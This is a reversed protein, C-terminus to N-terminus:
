IEDPRRINSVFAPLRSKVFEYFAVNRAGAGTIGETELHRIAAQLVSVVQKDTEFKAAIGRSPHWGEVRGNISTFVEFLQVGQPPDGQSLDFATDPSDVKEAWSPLRDVPTDRLTLSLWSSFRKRYLLSVRDRLARKDAGEGLQALAEKALAERAQPFAAAFAQRAQAMNVNFQLTVQGSHDGHEPGSRHTTRIRGDGFYVSGIKGGSVSAILTRPAEELYEQKAWDPVGGEDQWGPTEGDEYQPLSPSSSEDVERQVTPRARAEAMRQLDSLRRVLPSDDARAQLSSLAADAPGRAEAQRRRGEPGALADGQRAAPEVTKVPEEPDSRNL